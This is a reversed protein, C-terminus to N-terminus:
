DNRRTIFLQALDLYLQADQRLTDGNNLFNELQGTEMFHKYVANFTTNKLLKKLKSFTFQYLTSQFLENIITGTWEPVWGWKQPAVMYAVFGELDVLSIGQISFESMNSGYLDKTLGKVQRKYEPITMRNSNDFNEEFRQDFSEKVHRKLFWILTKSMVDKRM